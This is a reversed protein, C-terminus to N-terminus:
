TKGQMGTIIAKDNERQGQKCHHKDQRTTRKCVVPATLPTQKSKAGPPM